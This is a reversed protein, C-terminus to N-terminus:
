RLNDINQCGKSGLLNIILKYFVIIPLIIKKVKTIHKVKMPDAWVISYFVSKHEQTLLPTHEEKLCYGEHSHGTPNM